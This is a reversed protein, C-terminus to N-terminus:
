AGIERLAGSMPNWVAHRWNAGIPEIHDHSVLGSIGGEATYEYMLRTEDDIDMLRPQLLTRSQLEGRYRVMVESGPGYVIREGDSVSPSVAARPDQRVLGQYWDLMQEALSESIMAEEGAMGAAKSLRELYAPLDEFLPSSLGLGGEVADFIAIANGVRRPGEPGYIAIDTHAYRLDGKSISRERSLMLRLAKAIALRAARPAEADGEFWPQAVQILIGTTSFERQKRSMRRDIKSLDKYSHRTGNSEYGEVSELVRMKIEALAGSASAQLRGAVVVDPQLSASVSTRLRPRTDPAFPVPELMISREYTNTRWERVRYTRKLHRHTAGPHAEGLAKDESITGITESPNRIDRLAYNTNGLKRLSYALHPGASGEMTSVDFERPRIAGPIAMALARDFGEPWSVTPPLMPHEPDIASEEVLCRAQQWQIKPNGLYLNSGEVPGAIYERFTTGLKTFAASPAIVAFVASKSRGCRGIRQRLAKRNEPIGLNLGIIFQPIDIGLELASTAVVARLEGNRLAKEIARRDKGEYGSRYPLVDDRDVRHTVREVKQRGDVFAIVGDPAIESALNTVIEALMAEAPAGYDPGEMHIYSSGHSPAGNDAETVAHFEVGTLQRLHDAPDAITASAAVIQLPCGEKGNHVRAELAASRLRRFFFACTSGFVSEFAHAEDIFIMTLDGLFRQMQPKARQRMAWSHWVDPTASVIRANELVHDRQMPDVDGNIEGVLSKSLGAHELSVQLRAFQDGGLAKQPYFALIRADPNELLLRVARAQFPLTKGSATATAVVVNQGAELLDMAMGQHTWVKTGGTMNQLWTQLKGSNYPANPEVAREARAPVDIREIIHPKAAWSFIDFCDTM